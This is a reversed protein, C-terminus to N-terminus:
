SIKCPVTYTDYCIARAGFGEKQYILSENLVRGKEENSTGFDFYRKALFESNILRDFLLDLAGYGKGDPSASIYQCHAVHTTVYIVAGAIMREGDFAGFLRINDPFLTALHEIEEVSHVPAANYRDHLNSTLIQWFTKFDTSESITINQRIAKRIGSKRIDRFKLRDESFIVSSVNRVSLTANLRFLAYLDEESPLRHYIHPVPKYVLSEAGQGALFGTVSQLLHLVDSTTAKKGLILGGYTLGAHSSVINERRSAPLLAYISGNRTIILSNDTFRSSHYELYDRKLLFTGNKSDDVFRDWEKKFQNSYPTICFDSM